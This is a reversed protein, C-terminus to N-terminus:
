RGFARFIFRYAPISQPGIDLKRCIEYIGRCLVRDEHPRVLRKEGRSELAKRVARYIEKKLIKGDLDTDLDRFAEVLGPFAGLNGPSFGVAKRFFVPHGQVAQDAYRRFVDAERLRWLEELAEGAPRLPRIEVDPEVGHHQVITGDPLYYQMLTVYLLLPTKHHSLRASLPVVSQGVGKGFTTEGVLVARDHSKLSGSLMESASASARNVLVVLPIDPHTGKEQTRFTQKGRMFPHKSEMTAIVRKGGLFKNAVAVCAPLAGGPNGRLDLILGRMQEKELAKLAKEVERGLTLNFILARVYGIRGPLMRHSVNKRQTSGQKLVVTHPQLWGERKVTLRVSEGEKAKLMEAIMTPPIEGVPKGDIALIEDDICLGAEEAPYGGRVHAIKWVGEKTRTPGVGLSPDEAATMAKMLKQFLEQDMLRSFPDQLPLLMGHAGVEALKEVDVGGVRRAFRDLLEVLRRLNKMEARRLAKVLVKGKAEDIKKGPQTELVRVIAEWAAKVFAEPEHKDGEIHYNRLGKRVAELFKLAKKGSDSLERAHAPPATAAFLAVALIFGSLTKRM